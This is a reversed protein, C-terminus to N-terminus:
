KGLVVKKLSSITQSNDKVKKEKNLSSFETLILKSIALQISKSAESVSKSAILSINDSRENAISVMEWEVAVLSKLLASLKKIQKDRYKKTEKMQLSYSNM